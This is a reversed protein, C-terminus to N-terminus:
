AVKSRLTLVPCPAHRVVKEAVSGLLLHALGTRGHTAVIILDANIEKAQECIGDAPSSHELVVTKVQAVKALREERLRQLEGLIRLNIDSAQAIVDSQQVPVASFAFPAIDYVHLLTVSAGLAQALMAAADIALHSANSFDTAVLIHQAFTM